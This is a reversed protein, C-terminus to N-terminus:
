IGRQSSGFFSVVFTRMGVDSDFSCGLSGGCAAFLGVYAEGISYSGGVGVGFM